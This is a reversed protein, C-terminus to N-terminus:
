TTGKNRIDDSGYFMDFGMDGFLVVEVSLMLQCCTFSLMMSM